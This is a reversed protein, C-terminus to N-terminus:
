AVERLVRAPEEEVADEEPAERVRAWLRYLEAVAQRWQLLTADAECLAGYLAGVEAEAREVAARWAPDRAALREASGARYGCALASTVAELDAHALAELFGTRGM